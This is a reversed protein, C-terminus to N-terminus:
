PKHTDCLFFTKGNRDYPKTDLSPCSCCKILADIGKGIEDPENNDMEQVMDKIGKFTAPYQDSRKRTLISRAWAGVNKGGNLKIQALEQESVRVIFHKNRM